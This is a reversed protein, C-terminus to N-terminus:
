TPKATRTKKAMRHAIPWSADCFSSPHLQRHMSWCKMRGPLRWCKESWRAAFIASLLGWATSLVVGAVLEGEAASNGMACGGLPHMTIMRGLYPEDPNEIFHGGLQQEAIKRSLDMVWNFHDMSGTDTWDIDLYPKGDSGTALSMKRDPMDRGMGLLPMSGSSLDDGEPESVLRYRRFDAHHRRPLRGRPM